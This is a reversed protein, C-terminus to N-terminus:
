DPPCIFASNEIWYGANLADWVGIPYLTSDSIPLFSLVDFPNTYNLPALVWQNTYTGSTSFWIYYNNLQTVCKTIGLEEDDFIYVAKYYPKGNVFGLEPSIICNTACDSGVCEVNITFCIDQPAITTTSTTSSTTSTTTQSSTTTTTTINNEQVNEIIARSFDCSCSYGYIKEFLKKILVNIGYSGHLNLCNSDVNVTVCDTLIIEECNKTECPVIYMTTTSTTTTQLCTCPNSCCSNYKNNCMMNSYKM